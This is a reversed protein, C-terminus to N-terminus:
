KIPFKEERKQLVSPPFECFNKLLNTYKKYSESAYVVCNCMPFLYNIIMVTTLM